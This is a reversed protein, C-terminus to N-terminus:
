FTVRTQFTLILKDPLVTNKTWVRHVVSSATPLPSKPHEKTENSLYQHCEWWNKTKTKTRTKCISNKKEKPLLSENTNKKVGGPDYEGQFITKLDQKEWTCM